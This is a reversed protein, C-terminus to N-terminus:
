ADSEQGDLEGLGVCGERLFTWRVTARVGRGREDRIQLTQEDLPHIERVQGFGRPVRVAGQIHRVVTPCHPRLRLTTAIGRRTLANPAASAALGEHFYATVDEIGLTNLSRGNWPAYYRGGNDHWLITSALVRPDRLSFWVVGEDSYTVANWAPFLDPEAALLVLDEYGRRDPYRSLDAIRGDLREVRSLESFEAGPRLISYGQRAPDEFPAPYVQGFRFPSVAVRASGPRDAFGLTPHHGLCMPGKMGSIIHSSYIATEGAVLLLRKKVEGVRVRTKMRMALAAGTKAKRRSLLEWRREATEGHPPHTEGKWPRSNGGFPMCFFDGRLVRLVGPMDPSLSENWWPAIRYPAFPRASDRFFRVPAMHGGQRTVHLEMERTSIRYTLQGFSKTLPKGPM